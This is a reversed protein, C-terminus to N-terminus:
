RRLFSRKEELKGDRLTYLRDAAVAEFSLTPATKGPPIVEVTAMTAEGLGFHLPVWAGSAYSPRLIFEQVQRVSGATVVVKTGLVTRRDAGAVPLIELAHGHSATANKMLRIGGSVAALVVDLRGDGDVDGVALGRASLRLAAWDGSRATVDALRGHGENRWVLPPQKYSHDGLGYVGM